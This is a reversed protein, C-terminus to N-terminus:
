NNLVVGLTLQDRLCSAAGHNSVRNRAATVPTEGNNDAALPDAGRSFLKRACLVCGQSLLHFWRLAHLYERGDVLCYIGQPRTVM